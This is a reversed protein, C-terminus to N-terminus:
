EKIFKSSVSGDATELTIFYVGSKLDAIEIVMNNSSMFEVSMVSQGLLNSITASSAGPYHVTIRENAPNPYISIDVVENANISTSGGEWGINDIYCTSGATRPDPFDPFFVLRNYTNGIAATFDFTLLEWEGTVTNAVMVEVNDGTGEELKLGCNSIVDKHVMMEMIYNEATIEVAGYAEAWAGAWPDANPLVTFLLCNASANIGDTAPNEALGMNEESDGSNAFQNWVTDEMPTEFDAPLEYQAYMGSTFLALLLLTFIQKM